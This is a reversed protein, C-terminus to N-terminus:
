KLFTAVAQNRTVVHAKLQTIASTFTATNSLYSYPAVEQMVSSSILNYNKDFIANMKASTFYNDNFDKVYSKYKAYYTADDALYRILPWSAAVETMELSVGRMGGGGGQQTTNGAANSSTM